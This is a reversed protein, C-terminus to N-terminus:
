HQLGHACPPAQHPRTGVKDFIIKDCVSIINWWIPARIREGLHTPREPSHIFRILNRFCGKPYSVKFEMPISRDLATRTDAPNHILSARFNPGLASLFKYKSKERRARPGRRRSASIRLCPLEDGDSHDWCSECAYKSDIDVVLVDSPIPLQKPV